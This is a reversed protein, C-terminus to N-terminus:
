EDDRSVLGELAEIGMRLAIELVRDQTWRGRALSPASVNLKRSLARAREVLDAPVDGRPTPAPPRGSPKPKIANKVMGSLKAAPPPPAMRVAKPAPPISSYRSSLELRAGPAVTPFQGTRSTNTDSIMVIREHMAENRPDFTLEKLVIENRAGDGVARCSACSGAGELFPTGDVLVWRFRVWDGVIITEVTAARVSDGKIQPAISEVARAVDSHPTQFTLVRM